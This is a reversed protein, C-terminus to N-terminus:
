LIQRGAADFATLEAQSAPTGPYEEAMLTWVMADEPPGGERVLCPGVRVSDALVRAGALVDVGGQDAVM